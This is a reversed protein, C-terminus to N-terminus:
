SGHGRRRPAEGTELMDRYVDTTVRQCTTLDLRWTKNLFQEGFLGASNLFM